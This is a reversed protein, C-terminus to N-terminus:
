GDVKKFTVEYAGMAALAVIFANLVVLPADAATLGAGGFLAVCVQLVLAIVLVLVRTPIHGIKDLPIKFYQVILLVAAIQAASTGLTAWTYFDTM